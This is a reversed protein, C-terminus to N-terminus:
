AARAPAPCYGGQELSVAGQGFFTRLWMEFCLLSWIRLRHNVGQRCHEDLTREIESRAILDHCMARSSLLIDKVLQLNPGRYWSEDPSSFGQKRRNIIEAPVFKEMGLRLVNKGDNHAAFYSDSKRILNEDQRKWQDINSLKHRVPVRMAFDVLDNDLFPLREELGHAMSLKDGILLLGSLFTKCEFYLSNAIHDEPTEFRLGNHQRFVTTLVEQLNSQGMRSRAQPTFFRPQMEEPVIRQWYSFYDRLFEQKNLARSARYYRWPYGGFLEDGGTGGLCVKVFKSALRAIYFNAYSMGLRLDELHNVVQPLAWRLDGAGLVQEYHETHFTHAMM